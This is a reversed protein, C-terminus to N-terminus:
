VQNYESSPDTYGSRVSPYVVTEPWLGVVPPEPLPRDTERRASAPAPPLLHGDASLIPFHFDSSPTSHTSDAYPSYPESPSSLLPARPYQGMEPERAEANERKIKYKRILVWAALAALVAVGATLYIKVLGVSRQSWQSICRTRALYRAAHHDGARDDTCSACYECQWGRSFCVTEFVDKCNFIYISFCIPM